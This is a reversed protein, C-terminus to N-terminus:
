ENSENSKVKHGGFENRQAAVVKYAFSADQRSLYRSYLAHAGMLFPVGHDLSEQVTWKGEGNDEIYAAIKALDKDKSLADRTCEMLYGRVISGNCYLNAIAFLDLKADKYHGERLIEFGEGIAQMQAYEIANHVMKVYHGAGAPGVHAYGDPMAVDRLIPQVHAVVAADGGCMVCYGVEAGKLGGSVGVDVLNIGRADTLAHRRLTDHFNSNGGDILIDGPSLTSLLQTLTQETVDGSPLMLWVVRPPRLSAAVDTVHEVTRCGQAAVEARPEPSRNWAVVDHGKQQLRLAIGKGMRGLGLIAIEM